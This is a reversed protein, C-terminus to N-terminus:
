AKTDEKESKGEKMTEMTGDEHLRKKMGCTACMVDKHTMNGESKGEGMVIFQHQHEM